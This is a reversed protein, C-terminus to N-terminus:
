NIGYDILSINLRLVYKKGYLDLFNIYTERFQPFQECLGAICNSASM